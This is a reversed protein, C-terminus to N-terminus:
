FIALCTFLIAKGVQLTGSLSVTRGLVIPPNTQAFSHALLALLLLGLSGCSSKFM